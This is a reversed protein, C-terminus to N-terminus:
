KINRNILSSNDLFETNENKRLAWIKLYNIDTHSYIKKEGSEPSDVILIYSGDAWYSYGKLEAAHLKNSFINKKEYIVIYSENIWTISLLATTDPNDILKATLGLNKWIQPLDKVFVKGASDLNIFKQINENIEFHNHPEYYLMIRKTCIQISGDDIFLKEKEKNYDISTCSSIILVMMLLYIGKM